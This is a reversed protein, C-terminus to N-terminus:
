YSHLLQLEETSEGPMFRSGRESWAEVPLWKAATTNAIKSSDGTIVVSSDMRKIPQLQNRYYKKEKAAVLVEGSDSDLVDDFSSDLVEDFHVRLSQLRAEIDVFQRDRTEAVYGNLM